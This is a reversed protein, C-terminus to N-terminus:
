LQQKEIAEEPLYIAFRCVPDGQLVNQLVEVHIPQGFIVEYQRKHFGGSCQCWMPNVKLAGHRLSEKAWPCHCYHYHKKQPDTEELYAKTNYPIKTEYVINGARVGGGIEPNSDVFAIVEETIEQGFFLDGREMFGRLTETFQRDKFALFRDIDGECTEHYEQYASQYSADPLDRLSDQLINRTATEGFIEDMRRMIQYNYRSKEHRSLGLPPLPLEDFVSDRLDDGVVDSLRQYLNDMAEYGDLMQFIAVYMEMNNILFAYRALALLNQISNEGSDILEDVLEQTAGHTLDEFAISPQRGALRNEMLSIFAVHEDIQEQPLGRKILIDRFGIEDM